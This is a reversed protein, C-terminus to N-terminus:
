RTSRFSFSFVTNEGREMTDGITIAVFIGFQKGNSILAYKVANDDAYSRVQHIANQLNLEKSIAGNIKYTRYNHSFPITFSDCAKKAEIVLHKIGNIRLIYDSYGSETHNERIINEEKWGLVSILIQDILKCRTDAESLDITDPYQEIIKLLNDYAEDFDM